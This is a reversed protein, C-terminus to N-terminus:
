SEVDFYVETVLKEKIKVCSSRFYFLQFWMWSKGIFM